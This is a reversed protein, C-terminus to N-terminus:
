CRGVILCSGKVSSVVIRRSRRRNRAVNLSSCVFRREVGAHTACSSAASHACSSAASAADRFYLISISCSVALFFISLCRTCASTMAQRPELRANVAAACANAPWDSRPANARTWPKRELWGCQPKERAIRRELTCARVRGANADARDGTWRPTRTRM